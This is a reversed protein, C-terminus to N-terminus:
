RQPRSASRRGRPLSLGGAPRPPCVVRPTACAWATALGRPSPPPSASGRAHCGAPPAPRNKGTWPQARSGAPATRGHPGLRVAGRPRDVAGCSRLPRPRRHPAGHAPSAAAACATAGPSTTDPGLFRAPSFCPCWRHREGLKALAERHDSALSLRAVRPRRPQVRALLAQWAMCKRAELVPLLTM